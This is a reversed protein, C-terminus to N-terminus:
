WCSYDFTQTYTASSTSTVRQEADYAYHYTASEDVTGDATYAVRRNILCGQYEYTYNRAPVNASSTWVASQPYGRSDLTYEVQTTVGNDLRVYGASNTGYHYTLAAGPGDSSTDVESVLLGEAYTFTAVFSSDATAQRTPRNTADYTYASTVADVTSSCPGSNPGYFFPGVLPFLLERPWPPCSATPSTATRTSQGNVGGSSAGGLVTSGGIQGGAGGIANNTTGGVGAEANGGGDDSCATLVTGLAIASLISRLMM